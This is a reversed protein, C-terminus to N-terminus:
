QTKMSCKFIQKKEEPPRDLNENRMSKYMRTFYRTHVGKLFQRSLKNFQIGYVFCLYFIPNKMKKKNKLCNERQKTPSRNHKKVNHYFAAKYPHMILIFKFSFFLFTRIFPINKKNKSYIWQVLRRKYLYYKLYM